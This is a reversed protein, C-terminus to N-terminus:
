PDLSLLQVSLYFTFIHVLIIETSTRLVWCAALDQRRKMSVGYFLCHHFTVLYM